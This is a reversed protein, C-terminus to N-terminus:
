RPTGEGAGATTKAADEKVVPGGKKELLKVAAGDKLKENGAVVVQEGQKVGNTIEILGGAEIGTVIKRAM